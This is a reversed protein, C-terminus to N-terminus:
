GSCLRPPRRVFLVALALMESPAFRPMSRAVLPDQPLLYSGTRKLGVAQEALATLQEGSLPSRPVEGEYLPLIVLIRGQASLHDRASSLAALPDAFHELSGILLLLDHRGQPWPGEAAAVEFRVHPQKLRRAAARARAVMAPSRDLGLGRRLEPALALLHAGTGCGVDLLTRIRHKRCLQKLFAIQRLFVRSRPSRPGHCRDWTLALRDFAIKDTQAM